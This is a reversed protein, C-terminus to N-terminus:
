TVRCKYFPMTQMDQLTTDQINSTTSNQCNGVYEGAAYIRLNHLQFHGIKLNFFISLETM